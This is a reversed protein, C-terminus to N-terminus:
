FFYQPLRACCCYFLLWVLTQWAPLHPWLRWPPRRRSNADTQPLQRDTDLYPFYVWAKLRNWGPSHGKHQKSNAMDTRCCLRLVREHFNEFKVTPLWFTAPLWQRIQRHKVDETWKSFVPFKFELRGWLLLLNKTTRKLLLPKRPQLLIQLHYLVAWLSEATHSALRILDPQDAALM